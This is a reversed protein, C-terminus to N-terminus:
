RIGVPDTAPGGRPEAVDRDWPGPPGAAVRRGVRLGGPARRAQVILVAGLVAVGGVMRPLTLAERYLVVGALATVVPEACSLVAARSAGVARVGGFFCAVAIVTGVVAFATIWAMGEATPMELQGSLAGVATIAAAAATCVVAALAYTDTAALVGSAVTIYLAYTLAAGLAMVVGLVVAPGAGAQVGGGGLLLGLGALSCALAVVTTREARERRLVVALGVVLAPYSYLLLGALTVDIRTVAGFYLFSQVAYGVAGLGACTLLVSGRPIPTRRVLVIAWFIAAAIAFRIGLMPVLGVDTAAAGRVLVPAVGFAAASALCLVVGRLTTATRDM